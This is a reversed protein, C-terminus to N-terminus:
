WLGGDDSTFIMPIPNNRIFLFLEDGEVQLRQVEGLFMHFTFELEAQGGRCAKKTSALPGFSLKEGDLMYQGTFDNCGGYGVVTGDSKFELFPKNDGRMERQFLKQCTWKKDVLMTRVTETTLPASEKSGCGALMTVGLILVLAALGTSYRKMM